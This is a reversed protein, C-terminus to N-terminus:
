GSNVSAGATSPIGPYGNRSEAQGSVRSEKPTEGGDVTDGMGFLVSFIRTVIREGPELKGGSARAARAADKGLQRYLQAAGRVDVEPHFKQLGVRLALIQGSEKSLLAASGAATGIEPPWDKAEERARDTLGIAVDTPLGKLHPKIAELPHPINKRIWEQLEALSEIPIEGFDYSNGGITVTLEPKDAHQDLTM